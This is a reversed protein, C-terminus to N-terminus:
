FEGEAQGKKDDYPKLRNGHSYKHYMLIAGQTFNDYYCSGM